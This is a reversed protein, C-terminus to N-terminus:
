CDLIDRGHRKGTGLTYHAIDIYLGFINNICDIISKIDRISKVDGAIYKMGRSVEYRM